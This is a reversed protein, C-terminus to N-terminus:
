KVVLIRRCEPCRVLGETRRIRAVDQAPLQMHCGQCMGGDLAAAGVGSKSARLDEYFLILDEPLRPRWADRESVVTDLESDIGTAAADCRARAEAASEMAQSLEQQIELVVRDAAEREQMVELDADEMTAKRRKLSEIEAQLSSLERPSTVKGAYLKEEEYKVKLGVTEIETDLKAQRGGVESAISQAHSMKGELELISSEIQELEAQEPLNSRRHTLRDGASDLRQLELLDILHERSPEFELEVCQIPYRKSIAEAPSIKDWTFARKAKVPVRYRGM